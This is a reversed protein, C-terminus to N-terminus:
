TAPRQDKDIGAQEEARPLTPTLNGFARDGKPTAPDAEEDAGQIPAVIAKGVSELVSDDKEGVVRGNRDDPLDDNTRAADNTNM